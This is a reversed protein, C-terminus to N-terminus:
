RLRPGLQKHLCAFAVTGLNESIQGCKWFFIKTQTLQFPLMKVVSAKGFMGLVDVAVLLPYLSTGLM